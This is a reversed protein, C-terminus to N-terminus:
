WGSSNFGTEYMYKPLHTFAEGTKLTWAYEPLNLLDDFFVDKPFLTANNLIQYYLAKGSAVVFCRAYLFLDASINKEISSNNAFIKRDLLYLKESLIDHFVTIATKPYLALQEIAPKLVAKNDGMKEWALTHIIEWFTAETMMTHHEKEQQSILPSMVKIEKLQLSKLLQIVKELENTDSLEITLRM